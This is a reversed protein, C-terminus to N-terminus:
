SGYSVIRLELGRQDNWQEKWYRNASCLGGIRTSPYYVKPQGAGLTVELSGNRKVMQTECTLVETVLSGTTFRSRVSRTYNGSRSGGNTLVILLGGKEIAITQVSKHVIKARTTVFISDEHMAHKRVKNLLTILKYLEHNRDYGSLWLAERNYPNGEGGLGRYQQEQGQYIIPIGDTLMTFTIVNKALALDDNKSPFRPIDHNESFSGLLSTDACARSTDQISRALDSMDGTPKAFANVLPFYRASLFILNTHRDFQVTVSGSKKVSLVSM